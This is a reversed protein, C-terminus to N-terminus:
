PRLSGRNRRCNRCCQAHVETFQVHRRSNWWATKTTVAKSNGARDHTEGTHKGAFCALTSMNTMGPWAMGHRNQNCHVFFLITLQAQGSSRHCIDLRPSCRVALHKALSTAHDLLLWLHAVHRLGNLPVHCAYMDCQQCLLYSEVHLFRLQVM